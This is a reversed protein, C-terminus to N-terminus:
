ETLKILAAKSVSGVTTKHVTGNKFVIVTPVSKVGYKKAVDPSDDTDVKFIPYSVEESLSELTPELAKCPRCWEAGFEVMVTEENAISSEFTEDTLIKIKSM